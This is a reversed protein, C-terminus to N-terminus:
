SRIPFWVFFCCKNGSFLLKTSFYCCHHKTEGGMMWLILIMWFGILHKAWKKWEHKPRIGQSNVLSFCKRRKMLLNGLFGDLAHTSFNLLADSLNKSSGSAMFSQHFLLADIISIKLLVTRKRCCINNKEKSEM